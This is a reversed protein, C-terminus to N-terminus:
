GKRTEAFISQGNLTQLSGSNGEQCLQYELIIVGLIVAVVIVIFSIRQSIFLKGWFISLNRIIKKLLNKNTENSTIIRRVIVMKVNENNIDININKINKYDLFIYKDYDM